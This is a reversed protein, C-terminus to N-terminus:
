GVQPLAKFGPVQDCFADYVDERFKYLSNDIGILHDPLENGLIAALTTFPGGSGSYGLVVKDLPKDFSYTKGDADTITVSRDAGFDYFWLGEYRVPMFKTFFEQLDGEYDFSIQEPFLSSSVYEFAAFDWVDRSLTFGVSYVEGYKYAQLQDYGKRNDFVSQIVRKAESESGEFGLKLFDDNSAWKTGLFLIVEPDNALITTDALVNNGNPSISDG